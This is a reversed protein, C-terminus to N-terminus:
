TTPWAAGANAASGALEYRRGLLWEALREGVVRSGRENLNYGAACRLSPDKGLVDAFDILEVDCREAAAWADEEVQAMIPVATPYIYARPFTVMLVVEADPWASKLSDLMRELKETGKYPSMHRGALRVWPRLIRYWPFVLRGSRRALEYRLQMVRATDPIVVRRGHTAGLQVLIVDPDDSLKMIRQLREISPLHDYNIAFYHFFEMGIGHELLREAAVRPFGIPAKPDHSTEMSRIGCDGVHLVRLVPLDERATGPWLRVPDVDIAPGVLARYLRRAPERVLNRSHSSRPAM